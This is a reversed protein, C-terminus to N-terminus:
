DDTSITLVQRGKYTGCSACVRHPLTPAGCEKCGISAAVPRRHTAKRSRMKSKSTRRKPVAM